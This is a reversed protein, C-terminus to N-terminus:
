LQKNELLNFIRGLEVKNVIVIKSDFYYKTEESSGYTSTTKTTSSLRKLKIILSFENEIIKGDKYNPKFSFSSADKTNFLIPSGGLANIRIFM